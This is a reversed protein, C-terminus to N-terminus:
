VATHDPAGTSDTVLFPTSAAGTIFTPPESAGATGLPTSRVVPEPALSHISVGLVVAARWLVDVTTRARGSEANAYTARTIGIESALQEQTLGRRKRTSQLRLGVERYFGNRDFSV